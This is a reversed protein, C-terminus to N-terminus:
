WYITFMVPVYIVPFFPFPSLVSPPLVVSHGLRSSCKTPDNGESSRVGFSYKDHRNSTDSQVSTHTLSSATCFQFTSPIFPFTHVIQRCLDGFFINLRRTLILVALISQSIDRSLFRVPTLVRPFGTTPHVCMQYSLKSFM